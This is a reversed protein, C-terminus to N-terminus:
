PAGREEELMRALTAAADYAELPSWVPYDAGPLLPTSEEANELERALIQIAQLKEARSLSHLQPLLDALCM